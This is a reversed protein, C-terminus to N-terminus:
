LSSKSKLEPDFQISAIMFEGGYFYEDVTKLWGVDDHTHPVVHVYVKSDDYRRADTSCLLLLGLLVSFLMWNLIKGM